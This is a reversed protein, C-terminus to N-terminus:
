SATRVRRARLLKVAEPVLFIPAAALVMWVWDLPALPVTHLARQMFPAYVALAQLALSLLVAALLWPNTFLGISTLPASLSRFNFVNIKEAVVIATFAMTQATALSAPDGADFHLRFLLLTVAGIWTGLALVHALGAGSLIAEDKRRPPRDMTGAHSPELGLAVASLGDTVLNIWLLQVPLLILPGGILLAVFIALVEGSNSSLLYRVFNRINAYQRRGEEVAGIISAFNDDMLVMDSAGRAVDTGRVGMAIGIDARKLAPADNVGDGTMGVVEGRAQLLHVIRLKHEPTTRAFLVDGALVDSLATDDLAELDRGTMVTDVPLGVQAAVAQATIAADGTIMIVRIGARRAAAIAPPVEARPPDMMGVIGLLTLDREAHEPDTPCTDGFARRALALTRLGLRALAAYAAEVDRRDADTLAREADGDLIRTCRELLVEPAGKVHATCTGRDREIVTMRKRGSDFPFESELTGHEGPLGAKLAATVLAGETAEGVVQWDEGTRHVRAHNCHVASTLLAELDAHEHVDIPAGAVEFRGAPEYGVGTVDFVHARTWIRQVTMASQTLTGTKDTCIVTAAGLTEAAPLRRLLARRRVMARVGLALTLTVVAPLGEPVAAVALSVGTLFMTALDHGLAVGVAAVLLALGLGLVGLRRGLVALSHQLPTRERTVEATLRAITGFETRMGTAVVVGVGRGHAVTTGMWAMGTREAVPEDPPGVAGSKAVPESEGTLAAEDTSLDIRAELRLDAPIHDGISLRVVDGPVLTQAEVEVVRGDRRARCRPALMRRLAAMAREARWEQVFGLIGNLAVIALIAVGDTVHGIAFSIGAAIFLLLILGDTFQRGLLSWWPPARTTLLRNRGYQALRRAVESESLGTEVDCDLRACAEEFSLAHWAPPDRDPTPGRADVPDARLPL